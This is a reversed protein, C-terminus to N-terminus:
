SIVRRVGAVGVCVVCACALRSGLAYAAGGVPCFIFCIISAIESVRGSSHTWTWWPVATRSCSGCIHCLRFTSRPDLLTYRGLRLYFLVYWILHEACSMCVCVTRTCNYWICITHLTYYASMLSSAWLAGFITLKNEGPKRVICRTCIYYVWIYCCTYLM